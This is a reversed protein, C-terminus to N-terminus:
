VMPKPSCNSFTIAFSYYFITIAFSYYFIYLRAM